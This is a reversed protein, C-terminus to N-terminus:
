FTPLHVQAPLAPKAKHASLVVVQSKGALLRAMTIMSAQLAPLSTRSSPARQFMTAQAVKRSIPISSLKVMNHVFSTKMVPLVTKSVDGTVEPM